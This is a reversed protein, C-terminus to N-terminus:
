KKSAGGGRRLSALFDPNVSFVLFGARGSLERVVRVVWGWYVLLTWLVVLKLLVESDVLPEPLLAHLAALPFPLVIVQFLPFLDGTIHGLTLHSQTPSLCFLLACSSAVLVCWFLSFLSLSLALCLFSLVFLLCICLFACVLGACSM